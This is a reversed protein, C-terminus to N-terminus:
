FFIDFLIPLVIQAGVLNKPLTVLCVEIALKNHKGFVFGYGVVLRWKKSVSLAVAVDQIRSTHEFYNLKKKIIWVNLRM